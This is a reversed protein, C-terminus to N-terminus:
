ARGVNATGLLDTYLRAALQNIARAVGSRRQYMVFPEGKSVSLDVAHVDDPIQAIFRRSLSQEVRNASLRYGGNMRNGILWYRDSEIGRLRLSETFAKLRNIATLEPTTVILIRSAMELVTEAVDSFDNDTDAVVIDFQERMERAIARFTERRLDHVTEASDPARFLHLKSPHAPAARQLLDADLDQPDGIVDLSSPVNEMHLLIHDDGSRLRADLLMVDSAMGALAVALNTAILSTGVGGKAGCVAIIQQAHARPLSPPPPPPPPGTDVIRELVRMVEENILPKRLFGRVGIELAREMVARTNEESILIIQTRLHHMLYDAFDLGDADQLFLDLLIVDPLHRRAQEVGEKASTVGGVVRMAPVEAILKRLMQITEFYEAIILVRLTGEPYGASQAM